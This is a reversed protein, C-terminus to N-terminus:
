LSEICKTLVFVEDWCQKKKKKKQVMENLIPCLGTNWSLIMRINQISCNLKLTKSFSISQPSLYYQKYELFYFGKNKQVCLLEISLTLGHIWTGKVAMSRDAKGLGKELIGWHKYLTSLNEDKRYIEAIERSNAM